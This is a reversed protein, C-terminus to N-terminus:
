RLVPRMEKADKSFACSGSGFMRRVSESEPERSAIPIPSASDVILLM